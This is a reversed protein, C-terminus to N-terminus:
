RIESAILIIDRNFLDAESAIVRIPTLAHESIVPNPSKPCKRSIASPAFSSESILTELTGM